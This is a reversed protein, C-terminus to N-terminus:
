PLYSSSSISDRLGVWWDRKGEAIIPEALGLIDARVIVITCIEVLSKFFYRWSRTPHKNPHYTVQVTSHVMGGNM